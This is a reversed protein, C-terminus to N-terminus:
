RVPAPAIPSTLAKNRLSGAPCGSAPAAGSVELASRGAGFSEFSPTGNSFVDARRRLHRVAGASAALGLVCMAGERHGHANGPGPTPRSHIAAFCSIPRGQQSLAPCTKGTLPSRPSRSLRFGPVASSTWSPRSCPVSTPFVPDFHRTPPTCACWRCGDACSAAGTCRKRCITWLQCARGGRGTVGCSRTNNTRLTRRSNSMSRLRSGRSPRLTPLILPRHGFGDRARCVSGTRQHQPVEAMRDTRYGHVEVRPVGIEGDAAGVLVEIAPGSRRGEAVDVLAVVPECLLLRDPAPHSM